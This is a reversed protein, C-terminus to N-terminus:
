NHVTPKGDMVKVEFGGRKSSQRRRGLWLGIASALAFPIFYALWWEIGSVTLLFPVIRVPAAMVELLPPQGSAAYIDWNRMYDYFEVGFTGIIHGVVLPLIWHLPMKLGVATGRASQPNRMSRVLRVTDSIFVVALFIVAM